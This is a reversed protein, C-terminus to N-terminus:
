DAATRSTAPPSAMRTVFLSASAAPRSKRTLAPRDKGIREQPQFLAVALLRHGPDGLLIRAGGGLQAAVRAVIGIDVGCELQERRAVIGGVAIDLTTEDIIEPLVVFVIESQPPARRRGGVLGGRGIPLRDDVEVRQRRGLARVPDKGIGIAQRRVIPAAQDGHRRVAAVRQLEALEVKGGLAEHLVAEERRDDLDSSLQSSASM